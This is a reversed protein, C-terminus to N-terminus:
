ILRDWSQAKCFVLTMGQYEIALESIMFSSYAMNWHSTFDLILFYPLVKAELIYEKNEASIFSSLGCTSRSLAARCGGLGAAEWGQLWYESCEQAARICLEEATYQGNGLRLPERDLLYFTVEVGPEPVVQKVETKKFSRMKACFAM